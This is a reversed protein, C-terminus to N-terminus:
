PAPRTGLLEDMVAGSSEENDHNTHLQKRMENAAGGSLMWGLPLPVQSDHLGFLLRNPMPLKPPGEAQVQQESEIAEQSLTGRAERTHALTNIPALVEGLFERKTKKDADGADKRAPAAHKSTDVAEKRTDPKEETPGNRIEIVIPVVPEPWNGDKIAAEVEYLIELGTAAGSNEFYGGDVVHGGDPLRGAPSVYTFRASMHAATSVPIDRSSTNNGLKEEADETDAFEGLYTSTIPLNSTIIRKGSEVRTGNLFLAPLPVEGKWTQWLKRFPQALRNGDGNGNGSITQDWGYEWAKELAAARDASAFPVPLFRQLLDPFFMAALTPSLFDQRLIDHAKNEMPYAVNEALLANFVVAGLSGGSVGSIAFVHSAFDPPPPQGPHADIWAKRQDLSQDQLAALVVATWYAARIGGGETTVIFVPRPAPGAMPFAKQVADHWIGFAEKVPTKNSSAATRPATDAPVTRIAHNDNFGSCLVAWVLLLGIFPLRLRGAALVVVSGFCVWAAAALCVIAGSGLLLGASVPRSWFWVLLVLAFVSFALVAWLTGRDQWLDAMSKPAEKVPEKLWRRRLIFLVYLLVALFFAVTGFIYLNTRGAAGQSYGAPAVFFCGWAVLLPPLVGLIRPGHLRFWDIVKESSTFNAEAAIPRRHALLVRAWYWSQFSWILLAGYFFLVPRLDLKGTDANPEALARLIETGQQVLLFVAAGVLAVFFSFRAPKLARIVDSFFWWPKQLWSWFPHAETEKASM